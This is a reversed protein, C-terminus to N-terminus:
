FPVKVLGPFHQIYEFQFGPQIGNLTMRRPLCARLWDVDNQFLRVMRNIIETMGAISDICHMGWIDHTMQLNCRAFLYVPHLIVQSSQVAVHIQIVSGNKSNISNILLLPIKPM